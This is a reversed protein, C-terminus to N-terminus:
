WGSGPNKRASSQATPDDATGSQLAAECRGSTKVAVSVARWLRAELQLFCGWLTETPGVPLPGIQAPIGHEAWCLGSPQCWFGFGKSETRERATKTERGILPQSRPEGPCRKNSQRHHSCSGCRAGGCGLAPAALLRLGWPPESGAWCCHGPWPPLWCAPCPRPPAGAATRPAGCPGTATTATAAACPPGAPAAAARRTVSPSTPAPSSSATQLSLCRSEPSLGPFRPNLPAPSLAGSDWCLASNFSRKGAWSFFGGGTGGRCTGQKEEGEGAGRTGEM